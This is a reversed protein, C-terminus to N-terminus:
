VEIKQTDLTEGTRFHACQTSGSISQMLIVEDPFPSRVQVQVSSQVVIIIFVAFQFLVHAESLIHTNRARRCVAMIQWRHEKKITYLLPLILEGRPIISLDTRQLNKQGCCDAEYATFQISIKFICDLVADSHESSRNSLHVTILSLLYLCQALCAGWVSIHYIQIQM